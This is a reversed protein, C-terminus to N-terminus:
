IGKGSVPTSADGASARIQRRGEGFEVEGIAKELRIRESTGGGGLCFGAGVVEELRGERREAAKYVEIEALSTSHEGRGDRIAAVVERVFRLLDDGRLARRHFTALLFSSHRVYKKKAYAIIRRRGAEM